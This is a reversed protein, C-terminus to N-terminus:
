QKKKVSKSPYIIVSTYHIHYIVMTKLIEFFLLVSYKEEKSLINNKSKLWLEIKVM